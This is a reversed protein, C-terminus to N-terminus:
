VIYRHGGLGGLQNDSLWEIIDNELQLKANPQQLNYTKTCPNTNMQGKMLIELASTHPSKKTSSVPFELYRYFNGYTVSPRPHSVSM